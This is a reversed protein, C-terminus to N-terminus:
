IEDYDDITFRTSNLEIANDEVVKADVEADGVKAYGNTIWDCMLKCLKFCCM